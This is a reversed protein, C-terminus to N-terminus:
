LTFEVLCKEREQVQARRVASPFWAPYQESLEFATEVSVRCTSDDMGTWDPFELETTETWPPADSKKM